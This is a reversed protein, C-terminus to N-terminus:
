KLNFGYALGFSIFSYRRREPGSLISQYRLALDIKDNILYGLSPAIVPNIIKSTIASLGVDGQIYFSNYNWLPTLYYRYGVFGSFIKAIGPNTSKTGTNTNTNTNSKGFFGMINGSFIVDSMLGAPLRIKGTLGAGLTQTNSLVGVPVGAEVGLVMSPSADYYQAHAFRASTLLLVFLLVHIRM